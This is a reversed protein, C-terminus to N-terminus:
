SRLLDSGYKECEELVFVRFLFRCAFEGILPLKTQKPLSLEAKLMRSLTLSAM